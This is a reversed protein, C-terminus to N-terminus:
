CRTPSPKTSGADLAQRLAGFWQVKRITELLLVPLMKFPYRLDLLALLSMATLLCWTVGEYLPM